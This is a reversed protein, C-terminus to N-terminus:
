RSISGARLRKIFILAASLVPGDSRSQCPTGFHRGSLGLGIRGRVSQNRGKSVGSVLYHGASQAGVLKDTMMRARIGSEPKHEYLCIEHM